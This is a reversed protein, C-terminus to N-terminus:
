RERVRRHSRSATCRGQLRVHVAQWGMPRTAHASEPAAGLGQLPPPPCPRSPGPGRADLPIRRSMLGGVPPERGSRAECFGSRGRRRERLHTARHAAEGAGRGLKVRLLYEVYLPHCGPLLAGDPGQGHGYEDVLEPVISFRDYNVIADVKRGLPALAAEVAKRIREIDAQSRM